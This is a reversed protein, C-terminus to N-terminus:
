PMQIPEMQRYLLNHNEDLIGIEAWYREGSVFPNEPEGVTVRPYYTIRIPSLIAQQEEPVIEAWVYTLCAFQSEMIHIDYYVAREDQIDLSFTVGDLSVEDVAITYGELYQNKYREEYRTFFRNGEIMQEEDVGSREFGDYYTIQDDAVPLQTRYKPVSQTGLELAVEQIDGSESDLYFRLTASANSPTATANLASGLQHIPLINPNVEFQYHFVHEYNKYTPINTWGGGFGTASLTISGQAGTLTLMPWGGLVSGSITRIDYRRISATLMGDTGVLDDLWPYSDVLQSVDVTFDAGDFYHIEDALVTLSDFTTEGLDRLLCLLELPVYTCGNQVVPPHTLTYDTGNVTVDTAGITLISSLNPLRVEVTRRAGLWTIVHEPLNLEGLLAALPLYVEGNLVLPAPSLSLETMGDRYVGILYSPTDSREQELAHAVLGSTGAAGFLVAAAIIIGIFSVSLRRVKAQTIMYFRRRIQGAGGAMTTVLGTQPAGRVTVMALIASMYDKKDIQDMAKTVAADCALECSEGVANGLMHVLPNFWHIGRVALVAWKYPLDRHRIHTLEHRLIHQLQGDPIERCPLMITPRLMGVALPSSVANTYLVRPARRFGYALSLQASIPLADGRADRRCRHLFLGYSLLQVAFFVGAGFVWLYPLFAFAFMVASANAHTPIDTIGKTLLSNDTGAQSATAATESIVQGAMVTPSFPVNVTERPVTVPILFAALAIIWIYHQWIPGFLQTTRRKILLLGGTVAGGALSLVLVAQFIEQLM